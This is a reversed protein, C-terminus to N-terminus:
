SNFIALGRQVTMKIFDYFLRSSTGLRWCQALVMNSNNTMSYEVLIKQYNKSNLLFICLTVEM